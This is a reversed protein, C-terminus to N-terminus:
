EPTFTSMRQPATISCPKGGLAPEREPLRQGKATMDALALMAGGDDIGVAKDGVVLLPAGSLGALLGLRDREQLAERNEVQRLALAQGVVEGNDRRRGFGAQDLWLHLRQDLRAPNIETDSAVTREVHRRV